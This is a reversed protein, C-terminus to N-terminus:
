LETRDKRGCFQVAVGFVWFKGSVPPAKFLIELGM